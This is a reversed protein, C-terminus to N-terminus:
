KKALVVELVITDEGDGLPFNIYLLCSVGLRWHGTRFLMCM